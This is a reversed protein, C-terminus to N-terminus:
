EVGNDRNQRELDAISEQPYWNQVVAAPRAELLAVIQDLMADNPWVAKSFVAGCGFCWGHAQRFLIAIGSHCHPCDALWRGHNVYPVIVENSNWPKVVPLKKSLQTAHVTAIAFPSAANARALQPLFKPADILNM